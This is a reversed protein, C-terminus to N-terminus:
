IQSPAHLSLLVHENARCEFDTPFAEGLHVVTEIILYWGDISCLSLKEMAMEFGGM